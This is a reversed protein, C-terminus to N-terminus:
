LGRPLSAGGSAAERRGAAVDGHPARLRAGPRVVGADGRLAGLAFARRTGHRTQNGRPAERLLRRVRALAPSKRSWTTSGGRLSTAEGTGGRDHAPTPGHVRTGGGHAQGGAGGPNIGAQEDLLSLLSGPRPPVGATKTPPLAAEAGRRPSSSGTAGPRARAMMAQARAVNGGSEHLVLAADVGGEAVFRGAERSAQINRALERLGEVGLRAELQRAKEKLATLRPEVLGLGRAGRGGAYLAGLLMAPALERTAQEYQGQSLSALGASTGAVLYYFGLPVGFTMADFSGVAVSGPAFHRWALAHEREHLAERYPPPLQERRASMEMFRLGDMTQSTALADRAARGLGRLVDGAQEARDPYASLPLGRRELEERVRPMRGLTPGLQKDRALLRLVADVEDDHASHLVFLAFVEAYVLGHRETTDLLFAARKRNLIGVADERVPGLAGLRVARWDDLAEVLRPMDVRQQLAIYEAPSSCTLFPALLAEADGSSLDPWGAPVAVGGCSLAEGQPFFGGSGGTADGLNPSGVGSKSSGLPASTACGALLVLTTAVALFAPGVRRVTVPSM